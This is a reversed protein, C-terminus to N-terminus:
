VKLFKGVALLSGILGILVGSSVLLGLFDLPVFHLEIPGYAYGLGREIGTELVSQLAVLTGLAVGGGLLGQIAGELVFPARVFASTAGVLSMIEIEDRRAYVTLRITNSIILITALMLAVGLVMAAIRVFGLLADVREIDEQGFRVDAIGALKGIGDAIGRVEGAQWSRPELRVEISPPLVDDPLGDLLIADRGMATRLEGLADASAVFRVDLVGDLNEITGELNKRQLESVDPGLYASIEVEHGLQDAVRRLNEVIIAFTALVALAVGITVVALATIGFSRLLASAAQAFFFRIRSLM